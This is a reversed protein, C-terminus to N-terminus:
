RARDYTPVSHDHIYARYTICLTHWYLRVYQATGIPCSTYRSWLVDQEGRAEQSNRPARPRKPGGREPAPTGKIPGTGELYNRYM